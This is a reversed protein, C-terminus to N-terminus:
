ASPQPHTQPGFLLFRSDQLPVAKATYVTSGDAVTGIDQKAWVDRIGWGPRVGLADLSVTIDSAPASGSDITETNLFLAAVRGKTMHKAWVQALLRSGNKIQGSQTPAIDIDACLLMGPSRSQSADFRVDVSLRNKAADIVFKQKKPVASAPECGVANIASYHNGYGQVEACIKEGGVGPVESVLQGTSLDLHWRHDAGGCQSSHIDSLLLPGYQPNTPKTAHNDICGGAEVSSIQVVDSTVDSTVDGGSTDGSQQTQQTKIRHIRFVERQAGKCPAAILTGEDASSVQLCKRLDMGSVITGNPQFRWAMNCCGTCPLSSPDTPLKKCGYNTDVASGGCGNIEWCGGDSAKVNTVSAAGSVGTTLNWLQSKSKSSCKSIRLGGKGNEIDNSSSNPNTPCGPVAISRADSKTNPDNSVSTSQLLGDPRLSFRQTNVQSSCPRAFIPTPASQEYISSILRGAEGAWDSNIELAERNTIFDWCLDLKTENTLDFSLILPSSTV